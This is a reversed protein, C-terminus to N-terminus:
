DENGVIGHQSRHSQIMRLAALRSCRMRLMDKWWLEDKWGAACHCACGSDARGVGETTISLATKVRLERRM